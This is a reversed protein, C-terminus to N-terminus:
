NKCYSQLNLLIKDMKMHARTPSKVVLCQKLCMPLNSPLGSFPCPLFEPKVQLSIYKNYFARQRTASHCTSREEEEWNGKDGGGGGGTISINVLLLSTNQINGSAQNGEVAVGLTAIPISHLQTQLTSLVAGPVCNVM